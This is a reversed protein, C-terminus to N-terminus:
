GGGLGIIVFPKLGELNIVPKIRSSLKRIPLFSPTEKYLLQPSPDHSFKPKSEANFYFWMYSLKQLAYLM